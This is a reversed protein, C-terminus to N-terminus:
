FTNAFWKDGADIIKDLRSLVASIKASPFEKEFIQEIERNKKGGDEIGDEDLSMQAFSMELVNQVIEDAAKRDEIGEGGDEKFADM